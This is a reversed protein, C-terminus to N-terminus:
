ATRARELGTLGRLTGAEAEVYGEAVSYLASGLSFTEEAGERCRAAFTEAVGNYTTVLSGFLARDPLGGTITLGLVDGACRNLQAHVDNWLDSEARM